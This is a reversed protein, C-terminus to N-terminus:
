YFKAFKSNSEPPWLCIDFSITNTEIVASLGLAGEIVIRFRDNTKYINLGLLQDSLGTMENHLITGLSLTIIAENTPDEKVYKYVHLKLSSREWTSLHLDLLYSDHFTPWGGFWNIIETAGQENQLALEDAFMYESM